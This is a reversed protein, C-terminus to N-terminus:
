VVEKHRVAYDAKVLLPCLDMCKNCGQESSYPNCSKRLGRQRTIERDQEMLHPLRCMDGAHVATLTAKIGELTDELGPFGAHERPPITTVKGINHMAAIAAGPAAAYQDCDFSLETTIPGLLQFPVYEGYEERLRRIGPGIDNLPQHSMPEVIAQVGAEDVRRFMQMQQELEWKHAADYAETVGSPRFTSGIHMSVNYERFLALVEDLMSSYPNDASHRFMYNLLVGGQRSTTPFARDAAFKLDDLRAPILNLTMYDVGSLVSQEIEEWLKRPPVEGANEVAVLIPAVKGFAIEPYHERGYLWLPPNVRLISLDIITHVGLHAAERMKEKELGAEEENNAGIILNVKTELGKGVKIRAKSLKNGITITEM